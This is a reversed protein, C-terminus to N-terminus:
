SSAGTAASRPATKIAIRGTYDIRHLLLSLGHEACYRDVAKRAGQWHGYDDVILVGGEVLRPYLHTLEHYTSAFWDTDLRLIAIREPASAPLTDEVRGEVFVFHHHPYGTGFVADKVSPLGSVAWYNSARDSSQLLDSAPRNRYDRDVEAPPTMGEFTDYLWLRRDTCGLELLRLAAAMISGGRWVGCEVIDGPVGSRVVYDVSLCLAAVREVSTMTFPAVRAVIAKDADSLDPPYDM